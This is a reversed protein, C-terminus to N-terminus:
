VSIYIIQLGKARQVAGPVITHISKHVTKIKHIDILIFQFYESVFTFKTNKIQIQM